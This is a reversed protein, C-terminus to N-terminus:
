TASPLFPRRTTSIIEALSVGPAYPKLGRGVGRRTAVYGVRPGAMASEAAHLPVPGNVLRAVLDRDEFPAARPREVALLM